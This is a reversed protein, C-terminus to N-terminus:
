SRMRKALKTLFRVANEPQGLEQEVDVSFVPLAYDNLDIVETTADALMSVAYTVLQKNISQTSTSAAFALVKM